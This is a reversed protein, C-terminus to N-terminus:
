PKNRAGPDFEDRLWRVLNESHLIYTKTASPKMTGDAELEALLERYEELAREVENLAERKIRIQSM